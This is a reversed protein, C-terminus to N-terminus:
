SQVEVFTFRFQNLTERSTAVGNSNNCEQLLNFLTILPMKLLQCVLRYERWGRSSPVVAGESTASGFLERLIELFHVCKEPPLENEAREKIVSLLLHKREVLPISKLTARNIKDLNPSKRPHAEHCHSCSKGSSCQGLPFFICPRNCFEPHGASGINGGLFTQPISGTSAQSKVHSSSTSVDEKKLSRPSSEGSQSSTELKSLNSMTELSDLMSGQDSTLAQTSSSVISPEQLKQAREGLTTVYARDHEFPDSDDLLCIGKFSPESSSRRMQVLPIEKVGIFTWKWSLHDFVDAM